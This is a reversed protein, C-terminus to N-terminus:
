LEADDERSSPKGKTGGQQGKSFAEIVILWDAAIEKMAKKWTRGESPPAVRKKILDYAKTIESMKLECPTGCGVNRDPHWKLSLARYASRVGSMETTYSVGLVDYPNAETQATLRDIDLIGFTQILFPGYLLLVLPVTLAALVRSPLRWLLIVRSADYPAQPHTHESNYKYVYRPMLLCDILWGFGFFNLTWLTCLGHILRGLYFHHAGCLGGVMWLVYSSLLRKRPQLQDAKITLVADRGIVAHEPINRRCCRCMCRVFLFIAVGVAGMILHVIVADASGGVEDEEDDIDDM